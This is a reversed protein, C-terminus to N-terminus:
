VGGAANSGDQIIPAPTQLSPRARSYISPLEQPDLLKLYTLSEKGVRQTLVSMLVVADINSPWDQQFCLSYCAISLVVAHLTMLNSIM